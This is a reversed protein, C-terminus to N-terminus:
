TIKIILSAMLAKKTKPFCKKIYHSISVPLFNEGQEDRGPASNDFPQKCLRSLGLPM